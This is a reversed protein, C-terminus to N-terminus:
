EHFKESLWRNNHSLTSYQRIMKKRGYMKVCQKTLSLVKIDPHKGLRPGARGRVEPKPRPNKAKGRNENQKRGPLKGEKNLEDWACNLQERGGKLGRMRMNNQAPYIGADVTSKYYYLLQEKLEEHTQDKQGKRPMAGM